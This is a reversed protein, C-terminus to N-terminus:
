TKYNKKERKRLNYTVRPPVASKSKSERDSHCPVPNGIPLQNCSTSEPNDSNILTPSTVTKHTLLPSTLPNPELNPSTLPVPISSLIKDKEDKNDNSSHPIQDPIQNLISLNLDDENDDQDQMGDENSNPIDNDNDPREYYHKLKECHVVESIKRGTKLEATILFNVDSKQEKIIYPGFWYQMLKKALGPRRIQKRYLVRDGVKFNHQRRNRNYYYANRKQSLHIKEWATFRAKRVHDLFTELNVYEQMVHASEIPLVAERGYMMSFPTCQITDHRSTNIAFTIHPLYQDWDKQSKLSDSLYMSICDHIVSHGREVQGQSQAHYTTSLNQKIGIKMCLQRFLEATFVSGQDSQIINPMGHRCIIQEILFKIVSETNAEKIARTELWKTLYCCASIIYRNRRSSVPYPGSIDIQVHQFVHKPIKICQMLGYPKAKPSKRSQCKQCSKVYKVIIKRMHPFWYRMRIRDYTKTIGLHGSIPNDHCEKLVSDQLHSPIVLCLKDYALNRHYLVDHKLVFNRVLNPNPTPCRLNEYIRAIVPDDLQVNQLNITGITLLPLDDLEDQNPDYMETPNRSLYDACTHKHGSVHNISVINYDMLDMVYRSLRTCLEKKSNKLLWCLAHCDTIITIESGYVLNRLRKLTWCIALLELHTAPYHSEAKSLTRSVYSCPLIKGNCEQFLAGGIGTFSADTKVIAPKNPDFLHLIPATLLKAKLNDFARQHDETWKIRGKVSLLPKIPAAIKAFNEIYKRFYSFLGMVEKVQKGTTPPKMKSVGALKKPDLKVGDKTIIFGLVHAEEMLFECKEPKLKLNEESVREFIQRLKDLGEEYSKGGSFIDDFYNVAVHPILGKFAQKILNAFVAPGNTLGFPLVKYAFTGERTIFASKEMANKSMRIQYYGSAFDLSNFISYGRLYQLVDDIRIQPFQIKRTIKNLSRVDITFRKETWNGNSDKKPVFFCPSSWEGEIPVVLDKELLKEVHQQIEDHIKEPHNFQPLKIPPHNGTDIDFELRNTRGLDGPTWAFIHSFQYILNILGERIEPPLNPNIKLISIDVKNVTLNHNDFQPAIINAETIGYKSLCAKIESNDITSFIHPSSSFPITGFIPSTVTKSSEDTVIKCAEQFDHGLLLPCQPNQVVFCPYSLQVRGITIPLIVIGTDKIRNSGFDSLRFYRNPIQPLGEVLDESVISAKAGNDMTATIVKDMIQAKITVPGHSRGFNHYKIQLDIVDNERNEHLQSSSTSQNNNSFSNNPKISSEPSPSPPPNQPCIM